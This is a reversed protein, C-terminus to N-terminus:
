EVEAATAYLPGPVEAAFDEAVVGEAVEDAVAADVLLVGKPADAAAVGEGRTAVDDPLLFRLRLHGRMGLHERPSQTHVLTDFFYRRESESRLFLAFLFDIFFRSPVTPLPTAAPCDAAAVTNGSLSFLTEPASSIRSTSPPLPGHTLAERACVAPVGAVVTGACRSAALLIAVASMLVLVAANNAAVDESVLFVFFLFLFLPSLLSLFLLLAIAISRLLLQRLGEGELVPLVCSFGFVFRFTFTFALALDFILDVLFATVFIFFVGLVAAALFLVM